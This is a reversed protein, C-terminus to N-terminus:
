PSRREHPNVLTVPVNYAAALKDHAEWLSHPLWLARVRAKEARWGRTGPIVLGALGIEGYVVPGSYDSDAMYGRSYLTATDKAAHIGCGCPGPIEKCEKRRWYGCEAYTWDDGPWPFDGVTSRLEATNWGLHLRWGRYAVIEGLLDPARNM